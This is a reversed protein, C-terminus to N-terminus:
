PAVARPRRPHPCSRGPTNPSWDIPWDWRAIRLLRAVDEDHVAAQDPHRTAASSRTRRSDRSSSSAAAVIAGHGITVRHIVRSQYGLWVHNGVVTDGRSPASMVIDM